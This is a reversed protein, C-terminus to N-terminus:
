RGRQLRRLARVFDDLDTDAIRPLSHECCPPKDHAAPPNRVDFLDHVVDWIDDTTRHGPERKGVYLVVVVTRDDDESAAPAQTTFALRYGRKLHAGCVVPELPGSLRYAKLDSHCPDAGLLRRADGYGARKGALKEIEAQVPRPVLVNCAEDSPRPV